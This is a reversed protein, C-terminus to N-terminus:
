EGVMSKTPAKYFTYGLSFLNAKAQGAPTNVVTSPYERENYLVRENEAGGEGNWEGGARGGVRGGEGGGRGM